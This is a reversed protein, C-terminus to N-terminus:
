ATITLKRTPYNEHLDTLWEANDLTKGDDGSRVWAVHLNNVGHRDGAMFPAYIVNDYVFTKDQTWANYWPTDTIKFLEGQIFNRESVYFLPQGPIREFLFRANKLDVSMQFLQYKLLLGEGM